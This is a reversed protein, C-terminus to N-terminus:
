DWEDCAGDGGDTCMGIDIAEGRTVGKSGGRLYHFDTPSTLNLEATRAESLGFIYYFVHFNRDLDGQRVVRCFWEYGSTLGRPRDYSLM